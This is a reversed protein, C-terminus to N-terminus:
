ANFPMGCLLAKRYLRGRGRVYFRLLTFLQVSTTYFRVPKKYGQRLEACWMAAMRTGELRRLAEIRCILTFPEPAEDAILEESNQTLSAKLRRSISATSPM